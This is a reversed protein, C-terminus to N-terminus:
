KPRVYIYVPHGLGDSSFTQVLRYERTLTEIAAIVDRQGSRKGGRWFWEQWQLWHEPMRGYIVVAPRARLLEEAEHKAVSDSVVDINQAASFTAAMRETAGYFFGFEPYTFITDASTTNERVIRITSDVLDVTGPPLLLGRLEPLSSVITADKVSPEFWGGFGFPERLKFQTECLLLMACVAYVAFRQWGEFDNLLVALILGLGPITM